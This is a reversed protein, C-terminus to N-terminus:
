IKFNINNPLFFLNRGPLKNTKNKIFFNDINKSFSNSMYDYLYCNYDTLLKSVKEFNIENYECLIIPKNRKITDLMGEIALHESSEIDLKVINPNISLDDIKITSTKNKQIIKNEKEINLFDLNISTEGSVYINNKIPTFIDIIKGSENTCAKLIFDFNKKHSSKIKKLDKEFNNDAEISLVKWNRFLKIFGKASQGYNAGVDLFLGYSDPSYFNLFGYFDKEHPLFIFSNKQIFNLLLYIYKNKTLIPAIFYIFNNFFKFM